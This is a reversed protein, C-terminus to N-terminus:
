PRVAWEVNEAEAIDGIQRAAALGTDTSITPREVNKQVREIIEQDSM